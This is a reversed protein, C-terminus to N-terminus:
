QVITQLAQKIAFLTYIQSAVVPVVIAAIFRRSLDRAGLIVIAMLAWSWHPSYLVFEDGWINHLVVNFLLWGLPLWM